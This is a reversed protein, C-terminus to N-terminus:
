DFYFCTAQKVGPLLTAGCIRRLTDDDYGYAQTETCCWDGDVCEDARDPV